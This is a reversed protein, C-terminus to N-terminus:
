CATVSPTETKTEEPSSPAALQSAALSVGRMADSDTAKCRSWIVYGYATGIEPITICAGVARVPVGGIGAGIFRGLGINGFNGPVIRTGAHQDCRDFAIACSVSRAAEAIAARSFQSVGRPEPLPPGLPQAVPVGVYRPTAPPVHAPHGLGDHCDSTPSGLSLTRSIGSTDSKAALPIQPCQYGKQSLKSYEQVPAGAVQDPAPPM